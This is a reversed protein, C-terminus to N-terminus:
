RLRKKVQSPIIGVLCILGLIFLLCTIAKMLEQHDLLVLPIDGAGALLSFVFAVIALSFGQGVLRATGLIASAIGVEHKEVSSMIENNNPPAFLAIGIGSIMLGLLIGWLTEFATTLALVFLGLALVLMGASALKHPEIRDSWDGSYRSVIAMMIPQGLLILGAHHSDFNMIVQLYVSLVYGIAFSASYNIMSALNSLTFVLNRRMLPIAVLPSPHNWEYYVLVMGLIIGLGLVPMGYPSSIIETLGFLLAVSATLYLFCGWRDFDGLHGHHSEERIYRKGIFYNLGSLIATFYFISRWGWYYNLSGGLVPGVSLGIYVAASIFGIAWGRKEPPVSLTLIAMSNSALLANAAGQLARIIVFAEMSQVFNIAICLFFFLLIGFLYSRRRGIMDSLKGLPLMCAGTALLFAEVGWGTLIGDAHFESGINPLALNISSSSFPTIFSTVMLALLLLRQSWFAEKNM